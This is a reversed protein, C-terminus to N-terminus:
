EQREQLERRRSHAEGHLRQSEGLVMRLGRRWHDGRARGSGTSGDQSWGGAEVGPVTGTDLSSPQAGRLMSGTAVVPVM